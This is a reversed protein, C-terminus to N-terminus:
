VTKLDIWFINQPFHELDIVLSTSSPNWKYGYLWL